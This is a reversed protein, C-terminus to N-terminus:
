PRLQSGCLSIIFRSQLPDFTELIYMLFGTGYTDMGNEFLRICAACCVTYMGNWWFILDNCLQHSVPQLSRMAVHLMGCTDRSTTENTQGHAQATQTYAASSGLGEHQGTM